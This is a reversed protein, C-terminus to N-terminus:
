NEMMKLYALTSFCALPMFIWDPLQFFLWVMLLFWLTMSVMALLAQMTTTRMKLSRM